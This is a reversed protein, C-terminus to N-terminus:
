LGPPLDRFSGKEFGRRRLFSTNKRSRQPRCLAKRLCRGKSIRRRGPNRKRFERGHTVYSFSGRRLNGTRTGMTRRPLYKHQTVLLYPKQLHRADAVCYIQEPDFTAAMGIAQPFVTAVDNRAVGHLGENWWNFEHINLRPIAPSNYLLQSAKEELTMQSIIEKAKQRAQERTM